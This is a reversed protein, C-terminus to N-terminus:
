FKGLAEFLACAAKEQSKAEFTLHTAPMQTDPTGKGGTLMFTM